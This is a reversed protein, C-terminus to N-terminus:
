TTRSLIPTPPIPTTYAAYSGSSSRLSASLSSDAVSSMVEIRRRRSSRSALAIARNVWALTMVTCSTPVTSSWTNTAISNMSPPVSRSHSASSRVHCSITSMKTRAPRPSHAACRAPRTCRSKLGSLTITPLSPRTITISKPNARAAAGSPATAGPSDPMKCRLVGDSGVPSSAVTVAAPATIPVGAYM